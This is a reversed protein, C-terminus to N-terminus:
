DLCHRAIERGREPRFTSGPGLRGLESAPVGGGQRDGPPHGVGAKHPSPRPVSSCSETALLLAGAETEGDTLHSAAFAWHVGTAPRRGLGLTVGPGEPGPSPHWAPPPCQSPQARGWWSPHQPRQVPCGWAPLRGELGKRRIERGTISVLGPPRSSRNEEPDRQCIEAQAGKGGGPLGGQEVRRILGDRWCAGGQELSLRPEWPGQLSVLSGGEPWELRGSARCLWCATRWGLAEPRVRGEAEVM